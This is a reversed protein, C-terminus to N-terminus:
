LLLLLLTIVIFPLPPQSLVSIFVSWFSILVAQVSPVTISCGCTVACVYIIFQLLLSQGPHVPFSNQVLDVITICVRVAPIGCCTVVFALLRWRWM